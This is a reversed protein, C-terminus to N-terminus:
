KILDYGSLNSNQSQSNIVELEFDCISKNYCFLEKTLFFELKFKLSFNKSEFSIKGDQSLCEVNIRNILQVYNLSQDEFTNQLWFSDFGIIQCSEYSDSVFIQSIKYELYKYQLKLEKDIQFVFSLFKQTSNLKPTDISIKAFLSKKKQFFCFINKKKIFIEKQRTQKSLINSCSRQEFIQFKAVEQTLGTKKDILELRYFTSIKALQIKNKKPSEKPLNKNARASVLLIQEENNLKQTTEEDNSKWKLSKLKKLRNGSIKTRIKNKLDNEFEPSPKLILASFSSISPFTSTDIELELNEKHFEEEKIFNDFIQQNPSTKIGNERQSINKSHVSNKVEEYHTETDLLELCRDLGIVKQFITDKKFNEKIFNEKEEKKYKYSLKGLEAIKREKASLRLSREPSDVKWFRFYKMPAVKKRNINRIKEKKNDTEFNKNRDGFTKTVEHYSEGFKVKLKKRENVERMMEKECIEVELQLSIRVEYRLLEERNKNGLQIKLSEGRILEESALNLFKESM